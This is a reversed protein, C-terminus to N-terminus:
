MNGSSVKDPKIVGEWKRGNKKRIPTGHWIWDGLKELVERAGIDDSATKTFDISIIAKYKGVSRAWEIGYNGESSVYPIASWYNIIGEVQEQEDPRLFRPFVVEVEYGLVSNAYDISIGNKDIFSNDVIANDGIEPETDKGAAKSELLKVYDSFIVEVEHSLKPDTYDIGKYNFKSGITELTPVQIDGLVKSKLWKAYNSKLGTEKVFQKYLNM